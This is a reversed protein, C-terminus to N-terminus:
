GASSAHLKGKKETVSIAGNAWALLIKERTGTIGLEGLFLDTHQGGRNGLLWYHVREMLPDAVELISKRIRAESPTGEVSELMICLLCLLSFTADADDHVVREQLVKPLIVMALFGLGPIPECWPLRSRELEAALIKLDAVVESRSRGSKTSGLGMNGFVGFLSVIAVNGFEVQIGSFRAPSFVARLQHMQILVKLDILELNYLAAAFVYRRQAWLLLEPLCERRISSLVDRWFGDFREIPVRRISAAVFAVEFTLVLEVAAEAKGHDGGNISTVLTSRLEEAILERNDEAALLLSALTDLPFIGSAANKRASSKRNGKHRSSISAIVLQIVASALRRRVQPTPVVSEIVRAAFAIMVERQEVNCKDAEDLLGRLLEDPAGQNRRALIQFALQAVMDWEQKRIRPLLTRLLGAATPQLSVLHIATFYELFTRHTFQFLKEGAPSTGMDSFVWARGTCFEVFEKAALIAKHRKEFVWESLYSATEEVLQSETMGLQLSEKSYSWLALHGLAPKIHEKFPLDVIIGRAQDWREFLLSACKEYVDSRNRPIYNENRYLACMLGLLLPNERLDAVSASEEMFRNLRLSLEEESFVGERKFAYGAYQRVQVESFGGLRFVQFRRRDLPAQSYGVERSTIIVQVSPYMECFSEVDASIDRRTSTDLLEDLGDFLVLLRQNFLLYDFAGVPPTIQYRSAAQGAIFDIISLNRHKKAEGYERLVVLVPTLYKGACATKDYSTALKYCTKLLVTSKGGGPNGLLVARDLTVLFDELHIAREEKRKGEVYTLITPNVFMEDIPVKPSENLQPPVIYQHRARVQNRYKVEFDIFAEVQDHALTRQLVLSKQLTRIEDLLIHYRVSAKIENADLESCKVALDLASDCSALLADFLGNAISEIQVVPVDLKAALQMSFLERVQSITKRSDDTGLIRTSFIQRVANSVEPANLAAQFRARTKESDFSHVSLASLKSEDLIRGLPDSGLVTQKAKEVVSKGVRTLLSAIGGQVVKGLVAEVFVMDLSYM